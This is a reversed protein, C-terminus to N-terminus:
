RAPRASPSLEVLWWDPPANLRMPLAGSGVGGTVIVTRGPDEIRGCRYRQDYLTRGRATRVIPGIWPLVGQGCHTHGALLLPFEAPLDPAIDPSHTFAIPIGGVAKARAAAASISDHSSFRDGVGTIALPGSRVADNELTIVGAGALEARIADPATWHDHNGLVAFVGWRARLGALHRLDRAREVAGHPTDGIIFDGALLVIDPRAANVQAVVADLRAPPMGINGVHIDSLLAIRIPASDRPLQPLSVSGQRLIPVATANRLGFLALGVVVCLLLVIAIRATRARPM